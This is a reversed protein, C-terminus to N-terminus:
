ASECLLSFLSLTTMGTRRDTQGCPDDRSGSSPNEHFTIDRIKQIYISFIWTKNIDSLLLPVKCSSRQVNIIIDRDIRRLILFTESLRQLSFLFFCM